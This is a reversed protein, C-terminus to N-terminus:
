RRVSTNAEGAITVGEPHTYSRVVMLGGSWEVTTAGDLDIHFVKAGANALADLAASRQFGQGRGGRESTVIVV